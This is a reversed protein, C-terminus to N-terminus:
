LKRHDWSRVRDPHVLVAVRKRMMSELQPRLDPSYPGTYREYVSQATAWYESRSPDDVVEVAGEISIGQLTRYSEGSEILVSARPDRRLNRVKQSKAVTEFAICGAVIGYWMAVLHPQGDPGITALSATRQEAIFAAVEAGSMEIERRRNTM